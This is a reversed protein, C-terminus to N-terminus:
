RNQGIEDNALCSPALRMNYFNPFDATSIPPHPGCSHALLFNYSVSCYQGCTLIPRLVLFFFFFVMFRTILIGLQFGAICHTQNIVRSRQAQIRKFLLCHKPSELTTSSNLFLHFSQYSLKRCDQNHPPSPSSFSPFFFLHSGLM